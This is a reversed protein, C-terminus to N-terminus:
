AAKRRHTADWGKCALLVTKPVARDGNSYYAVTRRSLGLAEAAKALSLANALRWELFQRADGRGIASLTDLWLLDAGIESGDPWVLSHGWDGVEVAAFDPVKLMALDAVTGDSWELRLRTDGLPKASRITRMTDSNM